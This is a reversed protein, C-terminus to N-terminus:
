ARIQGTGQLLYKYTTIETLNMPGRAHLKQTSIGIEAGFGFEGGDTFRTSANWVVTSADIKQMFKKAAKENETVIADTHKSGYKNIHAIAENINVVIKVGITLALYETRWDAETAEKLTGDIIRASSDGVIEVGAARLKTIAKPLFKNAIADDIILKEAANCVSPRSVKANVVIDLAKDLDADKHVYVHCNGVGTEIVPVLSNEVVEKILGAGGRPIILDIYDKLRLMDAVSKRNTMEILQIASRPVDNKALVEQLVNVIARNSNLAASGGKLLVASGAKLCLGAADSTVNPRAEYIIGILGFPARVKKLNLGNPLTKEMIVEGVPDPLEKVVILGQAMQKIRKNDLKLRDLLTESLGKNKGNTLDLKNAHIIDEKAAELAAAMEELLKNKEQTSLLAVKKASLAGEIAKNSVEISM